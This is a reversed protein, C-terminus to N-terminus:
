IKQKKILTQSHPPMLFYSGSYSLSYRQTWLQVIDGFNEYSGKYAFKLRHRHRRYDLLYIIM